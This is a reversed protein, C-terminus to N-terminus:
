RIVSTSDESGNCAITQQNTSPSTTSCSSVMSAASQQQQQLVVAAAVAAQHQQQQQLAVAQQQAAVAQKLTAVLSTDGDSGAKTVAGRSGYPHDRVSTSKAEVTTQGTTTSSPAIKGALANLANISSNVVDMKLNTSIHKEKDSFSNKYRYEILTYRLRQYLFSLYNLQFVFCLWFKQKREPLKKAKQM